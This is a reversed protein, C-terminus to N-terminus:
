PILRQMVTITQGAVTLTGQRPLLNPDVTFRVQGNGPAPAGSTIRIWSDGSSASWTCGAATVVSIPTGAGGLLGITQSLPSVVFSCAAQTVTFTQGGITLTGTRPAGPNAAVTFGVSGNGSGAAGSTITLWAANSVATWACNPATTSLAISSGAGGAANISQSTPAITYACSVPPAAQSVTFTQGAITLTGTRAAGTNAAVTFAVNGSGSGTAGATVTIWTANSVATWTCTAVSTVTVATGAGGPADISQTTPAIVYTCAVPAAAQTVTFTQGAITLTGTRAAGTNAAVTFGVSGNGTGTAGSTIAIWGANSAATWACAATTAVAIPTGAGGATAFSQQNPTISYACAQPAAAQTVTFTQGAITLTGTRAAGTNAAVTFGVSGNGTGSAGSTITIWAASSSATWACASATAVTVPTGPGGAFGIAQGAPAITYACGAAAQTVTFTQGAITVTGVRAAATENAAVRVHVSGNGSGTSGSTVTIWSANSGATWACGAAAAVEVATDGDGDPGISATTRSITFVCAAAEQAVAVRNDNVVVEGQRAAPLPNAAAQFAIEGNGQGSTPTLGSIWNAPTSVAWACEPQTSVSVTGQGGAAALAAPAV